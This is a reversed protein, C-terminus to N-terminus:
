ARGQLRTECWGPGSFANDIVAVAIVNDVTRDIVVSRANRRLHTSLYELREPAQIVGEVLVLAAVHEAKGDGAVDRAGHRRSV